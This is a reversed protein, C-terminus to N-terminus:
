WLVQELRFPSFFVDVEDILLRRTRRGEAGQSHEFTSGGDGVGAGVATNLLLTKTMQRMCGNSNILRESLEAFTGYKVMNLVEFRQFLAKFDLQDRESLTPRTACATSM